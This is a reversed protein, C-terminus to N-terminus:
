TVCAELQHLELELDLKQEAPSDPELDYIELPLRRYRGWTFPFLMGTALLTVRTMGQMTPDIRHGYMLQANPNMKSSLLDLTSVLHRHEVRNRGAINVFIGNAHTLDGLPMTNRIARLTAEESGLHSYSHGVGARALGGRRLMSRFEALDASSLASNAFTHTISEVVSCCLQGPADREFRFPLSLTSTEPMHNDILIVTDCANLMMRVGDIATHLRDLEFQFPQTVLGITLAGKTRAAEAITPAVRSGTEGGMGALVFVVDAKGLLPKMEDSIHRGSDGDAEAMDGEVGVLPVKAHAKAIQLHYPDSDAAVCHVSKLDAEM